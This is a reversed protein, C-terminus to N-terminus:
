FEQIYFKSRVDEESTKKPKEEVKKTKEPQIIEDDDSPAPEPYNAEELKELEEEKKNDEM